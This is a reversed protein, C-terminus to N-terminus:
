LIKMPKTKVLKDNNTMSQQFIKIPEVSARQLTKRNNKKNESQSIDFWKLLRISHPKRSLKERWIQQVTFFFLVLSLSHLLNQSSFINLFGLKFINLHNNIRPVLLKTSRLKRMWYCVPKRIPVAQFLMAQLEWLQFVLHFLNPGTSIHKSYIVAATIM